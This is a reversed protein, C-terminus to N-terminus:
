GSGAELGTSADLGRWHLADAVARDVCEDLYALPAAM